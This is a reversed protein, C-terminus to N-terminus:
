FEIESKEAWLTKSFRIPQFKKLEEFKKPSFNGGSFNYFSLIQIM